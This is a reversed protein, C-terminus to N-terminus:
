LVSITADAYKTNDFISIARITIPYEDSVDYDSPIHVKGDLTVTVPNAERQGEAEQVKWMVSKNALGSTTVTATLQVDNGASITMEAPNVEVKSVAPTGYTFVIAQAFPSTSICAWVHMFINKELTTPNEWEKITKGDTNGDLAYYKDFFLDESIVAGLIHSLSEKEADTFPIYSDGLLETLRAEDTESFSDIMQLGTKQKAEDLFFSTAFVSTENVATRTADLLLYQNNLKTARHVGAPNYNPSMFSMLNSHGKMVALLDRPELNQDVHVSRITGDVFRRCLQYKDILYKDYEFTTYLNETIKVLLDYLGSDENSFALRMENENVKTDYFKQFNIEHVYNFVNPVEAQLFKTKNEYNKNFDNVHALDLIMERIQQGWSISGKDTMMKWPNEWRNEDIITLALVNFTNFFANKYRANDMILKGYHATSQGQVPLDIESALEPNQNIFYSIIEANTTNKILKNPM